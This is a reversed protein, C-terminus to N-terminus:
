DGRHPKELYKKSRMEVLRSATRLFAFELSGRSYLKDPNDAASIILKVNRDYLADILYIFRRAKDDFNEDMLPVGSLLVTHYDRAIEVYDAAARPADCLDDFGFWAIEEAHMRTSVPRRNIMLTGRTTIESPALERMRQEMLRDTESGTPSYWTDHSELLALRHDTAGDIHLVRTNRKILEIAPMFRERQLGNKYLDDPARNSTAVLVVGNDFLAELLGSLLMADTINTVIFEDLCIVRYRSALDDAISKLPNRRGAREGLMAHVNLMFTHFHKRLKRELPLTDYLMNMLWTKGRGVGGWLYLGRVAPRKFPVFRTLWRTVASSGSVSQALIEDHLSQLAAVAHRQASDPTFDRNRLYDAYRDTPRVPAHM